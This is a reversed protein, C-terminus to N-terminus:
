SIPYSGRGFKGLYFDLIGAKQWKRGSFMLRLSERLVAIKSRFPAYKVAFLLRNRSIYYDQLDSGSGGSSSANKHWVISLPCFYIKYGSKKTRIIFEINNSKGIRQVLENIYQNNIRNNSLITGDKFISLNNRNLFEIISKIKEGIDQSFINISMFAFVLIMTRKINM